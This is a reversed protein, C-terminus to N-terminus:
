GFLRDSFVSRQHTVRALKYIITGVHQNIASLSCDAYAHLQVVADTAPSSFRCCLAWAAPIAWSPRLIPSVDAQDSLVPCFCYPPMHAVFKPTMLHAGAPQARVQARAAPCSTTCSVFQKLQLRSSLFSSLSSLFSLFSSLFCRCNHCSCLLALPPVVSNPACSIPSAWVGSLKM